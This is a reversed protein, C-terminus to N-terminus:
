MLKEANKRIEAFDSLAQYGIQFIRKVNISNHGGQRPKFSIEEFRVHEQYFAGMVTLIVNPLNYHEPMIDIYRRVYSEKMLRFPANADPVSVKFQVKLILCLIKEVWFRFKGDERKVRYGFIAEYENRMQWFNEFEAPNTQGDSDTQFIYDAGNNLAYRYGFLVTDGHGGNEKKIPILLPMNSSLKQLIEYTNDKSGDDIIVLRSNGNSSYRQIVPYWGKVVSEVNESENYAPIVIYLISVNIRGM